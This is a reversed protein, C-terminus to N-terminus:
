KSCSYKFGNNLICKIYFRARTKIRSYIFHLSCRIKSKRFEEDLWRAYMISFFNNGDFCRYDVPTFGQHKFKNRQIVNIEATGSRIVKAGSSHSFADRVQDIQTMIGRGQYEPLVADFCYHAVLVGNDYWDKGVHLGVSATAVLRDGDFAVYTVGQGVRKLIEDGSMNVTRYFLGKERNKEHARSIVSHIQSYSIDTDKIDKVVVPYM